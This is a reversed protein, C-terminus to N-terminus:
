TTDHNANCSIVTRLVVRDRGIWDLGCPVATRGTGPLRWLNGQVAVTVSGPGRFHLRVGAVGDPALGLGPTGAAILLPAVTGPAPQCTPAARTPYVIVLCLAHQAYERRLSPLLARQLARQSAPVCRVPELPDPLLHWAAVLYVRGSEAVPGLYRLSATVIQSEPLTGLRDLAIRDGSRSARRLVGYQRRLRLPAPGAVQTGPRPYSGCTASATHAGSLAVGHSVGHAVGQAVGQAVGALLMAATALAAVTVARCSM